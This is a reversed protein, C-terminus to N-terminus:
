TACVPVQLCSSHQILIICIERHREIASRCLRQKSIISSMQGNGKDACQRSRCKEFGCGLTCSFQALLSNQEDVGVLHLWRKLVAELQQRTMRNGADDAFLPKAARRDLPVPFDVDYQYLVRGAQLYGNTSCSLYVPHPSWYSGLPDSKTRQPTLLAYDTSQLRMLMDADAFPFANNRFDFHMADRNMRLADTLRFGFQALVRVLMEVSRWVRSTGVTVSALQAGVPVLLMRKLEDNTFPAKRRPMLAFLGHNEIFTVTASKLISAYVKSHAMQVGFYGHIRRVSKVITVSEPKAAIVIGNVDLWKQRPEIQKLVRFYAIAQFVVKRWYGTVDHGRHAATNGRWASVGLEAMVGSWLEWDRGDKDVTGSPM